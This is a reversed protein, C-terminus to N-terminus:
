RTHILTYKQYRTHKRLAQIMQKSEFIITEGKEVIGPHFRYTFVINPITDGDLFQVNRAM